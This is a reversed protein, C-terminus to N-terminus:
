KKTTGPYPVFGKKFFEILNEEKEAELIAEKINMPDNVDIIIKGNRKTEFPVVKIELARIPVRLIGYKASFFRYYRGTDSLEIEHTVASREFNFEM